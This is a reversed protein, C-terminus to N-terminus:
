RRRKSCSCAFKRSQLRVDERFHCSKRFQKLGNMLPGSLINEAFFPNSFRTVSDRYWLMRELFNCILTVVVNNSKAIECKLQHFEQQYKAENGLFHDCQMTM